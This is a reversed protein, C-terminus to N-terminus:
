RLAAPEAEASARQPLRPECLLVTVVLAVTSIAMYKAGIGARWQVVYYATVVIVAQHFIYFPYAIESAGAAGLGTWANREAATEVESSSVLLFGYLLM